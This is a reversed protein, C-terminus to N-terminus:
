ILSSILHMRNKNKKGPFVCADDLMEVLHAGLLRRIRLQTREGHEVGTRTLIEAAGGRQEGSVHRTLFSLPIHMRIVIPLRQWFETKSRPLAPLVYGVICGGATGIFAM